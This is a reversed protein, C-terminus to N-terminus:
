EGDADMLMMRAEIVASRKTSCPDTYLDSRWDARALWQRERELMEERYVTCTRGTAPDTVVYAGAGLRTVRHARFAALAEEGTM